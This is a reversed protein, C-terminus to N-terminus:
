KRLEALVSALQARVAEPELFRVGMGALVNRGSGVAAEPEFRRVVKAPFRLTSAVPPPCHLEIVVVDNLAAPVDTSIFLSGASLDRHYVTLFSTRDPFEVPVVTPGAAPAPRPTPTRPERSRAGASDAAGSAPSQFSPPSASAVPVPEGRGSDTPQSPQSPSNWPVQSSQPSHSNPATPAAGAAAGPPTPRMSRAARAAPVLAGVLEEPPVFRVGAGPQEVHRLAISVRHVRAVEGEVVFGAARDVVELRLREGPELAQTTGLFLGTTSVNTTFGAHPQVSGRRWFRVELRRSHRENVRRDSTM